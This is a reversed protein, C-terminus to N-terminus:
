DGSLEGAYRTLQAQLESDLDEVSRQVPQGNLVVREIAQRIATVMEPYPGVVPGLFQPDLMSLSETAIALWRGRRTTEFADVLVPDERAADSVPLYSGELTWRVQNETSNSFSVFDWAAAVSAADGDVLYWAVGGPRGRGPAGLGPAPGVAVGFEELQLGSVDVAPDDIGLDAADLTGAFAADISAIATSTGILMSSTGMAMAFLTDFPQNAPIPRYLADEHMSALWDFTAISHENDLQSTVALGDRGNSRDVMPQSVGTLQNEFFWSDMLGVFPEQVGPIEAARIAEAVSRLDDLTEPLDDATLGAAELHDENVYLVEQAVNFAAPWLVDEVTYASTVAPLVQDYFEGADPDTAICASAPVASASDVMFRLAAAEHIVIDPLSDPDGLAAQYKALLEEYDGQAEVAVRVRDQGANYAQAIQELTAATIGTWPHWLTIETTGEVDDLVGVPCTAGDAVEPSAADPSSADDGPSTREGTAESSGCGSWIMATSLVILGVLRASRRGEVRM